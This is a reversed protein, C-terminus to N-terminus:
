FYIKFKDFKRELYLKSNLNDYMFHGLEISDRKGFTLKWCDNEFHLSGGKINIEQQLIKFLQNIFDKSACCFATNIRNGKVNYISGDGDFYGRIFDRLYEKPVKPFHCNFSKREKGGLKIIDKYIEVCSFNLRYAQRGTYKYLDGTYELQEKIRNLIYKDKSHTTIDFMKNNYICGDAFWFGLVYAM